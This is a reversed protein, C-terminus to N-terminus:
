TLEFMQLHRWLWLFAVRRRSTNLMSAIRFSANWSVSERASQRTISSDITITENDNDDLLRNYTQLSWASITINSFKSFTIKGSRQFVPEIQVFSKLHIPHPRFVTLFRRRIKGPAGFGQEHTVDRMTTTVTETGSKVFIPLVSVNLLRQITDFGFKSMKGSPTAKGCFFVKSYSM